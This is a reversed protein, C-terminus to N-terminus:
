GDTFGHLGIRYQNKMIHKIASKRDEDICISMLGVKYGSKNLEDITEQVTVQYDVGGKPVFDKTSWFNLFVHKPDPQGKKTQLNALSLKKEGNHTWVDIKPAPKGSVLMPTVLLPIPDLAVEDFQDGVSIQGFVEFAHNIGNVEKDVRGQLGYVGPPVDYVVFEGEDNFRLNFAPADDLLKKNAAVFAKGSPSSEFKKIWAVKKEQPYSEWNAPFPARKLEVQQNLTTKIEKVSIQFKEPTMSQDIRGKLTVLKQGRAPRKGRVQQSRKANASQAFTVNSVGPMETSSCFCIVACWIAVFGFFRTEFM